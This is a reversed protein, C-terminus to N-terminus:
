VHEESTMLKGHGVAADASRTTEGAAAALGDVVGVDSKETSELGEGLDAASGEAWQPLPDEM